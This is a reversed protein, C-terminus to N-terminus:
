QPSAAPPEVGAAHADFDAHRTSPIVFRRIRQRCTEGADVLEPELEHVHRAKLAEIEEDYAALIQRLRGAREPDLDYTSVLRQRYEAFPGPAERPDLRLGFLVGGAGGALFATAALIAIWFRESSM